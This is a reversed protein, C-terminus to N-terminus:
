ISNYDSSDTGSDEMSRRHGMLTQKFCGVANRIWVRLTGGEELLFCSWDQCLLVGSRPGNETKTPTGNSHLSAM